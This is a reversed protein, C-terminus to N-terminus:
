VSGSIGLKARAKFDRKAFIARVIAAEMARGFLGGACCNLKGEIRAASNTRGRGVTFLRSDRCLGLSAMRFLVSAWDLEVGMVLPLIYRTLTAILYRRM